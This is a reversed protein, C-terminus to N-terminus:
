YFGGSRSGGTKLSTGEVWRDATLVLSPTPEPLGREERDLLWHVLDVSWSGLYAPDFYLGCLGEIPEHMSIHAYGIDDPVRLGLRPLLDRMQDPRHVLIAEVQWKEIWQGLREADLTGPTLPPVFLDEAMEFKAFAGSYAGINRYGNKICEAREMVLGIRQYGRELMRGMVRTVCQVHNLVVRPLEPFRIARGIAVTAFHRWELAATETGPPPQGILVGEIGRSRLVRSLAEWGGLEHLSFPDLRYGLNSARERAGELAERHHSGKFNWTSADKHLNLWALATGRDSRRKKSRYSSLRTLLPDRQYGLRDAVELVRQRTTAAVQGSGRLAYSVTMVSVGAERAVDKMTVHEEAVCAPQSEGADGALHLLLSFVPHDATQKDGLKGRWIVVSVGFRTIM